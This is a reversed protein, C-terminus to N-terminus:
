GMEMNCLTQFNVKNKQIQYTLVFYAQRTIKTLMGQHIRNLFWYMFCHM